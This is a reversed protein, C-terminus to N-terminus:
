RALDQSALQCLFDCTPATPKLTPWDAPIEDIFLRENDIRTLRAGLRRSLEAMRDFREPFHRRMASWYNPSTAKGCPICNNNAFGLSYMVPLAIGAGKVM